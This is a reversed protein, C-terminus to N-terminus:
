VGNDAVEELGVWGDLGSCPLSSIVLHQGPVPEIDLLVLCVM